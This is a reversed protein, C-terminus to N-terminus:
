TPFAAASASLSPSGAGAAQLAASSGHGRPTTESYPWRPASCIVSAETPNARRRDRPAPYSRRPRLASSSHPRLVAGPPCVTMSQCIERAMPAAAGKAANLGSSFGRVSPDTRPWETLTCQAGRGFHSGRLPPPPSLAPGAGDCAAQACRFFFAGGVLPPALKLDDNRLAGCPHAPANVTRQWQHVRTVPRLEAARCQQFEGSGTVNRNPLSLGCSLMRYSRLSRTEAGAM